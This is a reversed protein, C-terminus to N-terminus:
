GADCHTTAWTQLRAVRDQVKPTRETLRASVKDIREVVRDHGAAVAEARKTALWQQRNTIETLHGAMKAQIEDLHSCVLAARDGRTGTPVPADDSAAAAAGAVGITGALTAAAVAMWVKKSMTTKTENKMM